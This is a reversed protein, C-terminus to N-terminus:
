FEQEKKEFRSNSYLLIDSIDPKPLLFTRKIASRTGIIASLLKYPPYLTLTGVSENITFQLNCNKTSFYNENEITRIMVDLGSGDTYAIGALDSMAKVISEGRMRGFNQYIEEELLPYYSKFSSQRSNIPIIRM